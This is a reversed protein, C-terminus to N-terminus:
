PNPKASRPELEESLCYADGCIVFGKHELVHRLKPNPNACHVADVIWRIGEINNLRAFRRALACISLLVGEGGGDVHALEVYLRGGEARFEGLITASGARFIIPKGTLVLLDMDERSLALLENQTYGEFLIERRNMLTELVMEVVISTAAFGEM